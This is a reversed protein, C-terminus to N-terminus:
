QLIGPDEPGQLITPCEPGCVPCAMFVRPGSPINEMEGIIQSGGCWPCVEGKKLLTVVLSPIPMLNDTQFVRNHPLRDSAIHIGERSGYIYGVVEGDRVIEIITEDKRDPHAHPKTRVRLKSRESM